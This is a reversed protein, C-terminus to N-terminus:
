KFQIMHPVYTAHTGLLPLKTEKFCIAVITKAITYVSFYTYIKGRKKDKYLKPIELERKVLTKQKNFNKTKEGWSTFERNKISSMENRSLSKLLTSKVINTGSSFNQEILSSGTNNLDDIYAQSLTPNEPHLEWLAPLIARNNMITKWSPEVIVDLNNENSHIIFDKNIRQSMIIDWSFNKSINTVLNDKYDVWINEKDNWSLDNLKMDIVNWGAKRALGKLYMSEILEETRNNSSKLMHLNNFKVTDKLQRYGEIYMEHLENLQTLEGAKVRKSYKELLWNKQIISTMILGDPADAEINVLKIHTDNNNYKRSNKGLYAFDYRTIFPPADDEYSSRAYEFFDSPLGLEGWEGDLLFDVAEYSQDVTKEVKEVIENIEEEDMLYANSEDWIPYSIGQAQRIISNIGSHNISNVYGPRETVFVRRMYFSETFLISVFFLFM